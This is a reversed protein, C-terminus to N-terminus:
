SKNKGKFKGAAFCESTTNMYQFSGGASKIFSQSKDLKYAGNMSWMANPDSDDEGFVQFNGKKANKNLLIGVVLLTAIAFGNKDTLFISGSLTNAIHDLTLIFLATYILKAKVTNGSLDACYEVGKLPGKFAQAGTVGIVGVFLMSLFVTISVLQAFRKKSSYQKMTEGEHKSIIGTLLPVV